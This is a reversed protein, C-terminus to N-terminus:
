IKIKNIFNSWHNKNIYDVILKKSNKKLNKNLIEIIDKYSIYSHIINIDSLDKFSGFNPAIIEANYYMSNILSGSSLVSDSLYTFLIYRSQQILIFLKKSSIFENLFTIQESCFSNISRAYKSDSCKGCILIKINKFEKKSKIFKLFEVIGKYKDIKGWIILDFKIKKNDKKLLTRRNSPHPIYNVKFVFKSGYKNKIFDIGDKAHTFIKDSYLLSFYMNIESFFTSGSHPHKNHLIWIFKKRFIRILILLFIFLITQLLGYKRNSINETWNFIFYKTTFFYKYAQLIGFYNISNKNVVINSNSINSVMDTIYPNKSDNNKPDGIPYIYFNNM